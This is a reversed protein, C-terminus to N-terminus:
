AHKARIKARAQVKKSEIALADWGRSEEAALGRAIQALALKHNGLVSNLGGLYRDVSGLISEGFSVIAFQGEFPELCGLLMKADDARDLRDIASANFALECLHNRSHVKNDQNKLVQTLKEAAFGLDGHDIACAIQLGEGGRRVVKDSSLLGFVGHDPRLVGRHYALLALQGAASTSYVTSRGRHEHEQIHEEAAAWSGSAMSLAAHWRAADAYLSWEGPSIAMEGLKDVAKQVGALDGTQMCLVGFLREARQISHAQGNWKGSDSLQQLLSRRYHVDPHSLLTLSLGYLAESIALDSQSVQAEDLAQSALSRAEGAAAWLAKHYAIAAGTRAHLTPNQITLSSLHTLLGLSEEDELGGIGFSSHAVAAEVALEFSGSRSAHSAALLAYKKVESQAGASAAVLTRVGFVRASRNSVEEAPLLEIARDAHTTASLFSLRDRDILAARLLWEVLQAPDAIRGAAVLQNVIFTALEPKPLVSSASNKSARERYALKWPSVDISASPDDLLTQEIAAKALQNCMSHRRSQSISNVLVSTFFVHTISVVDAASSDVLLNAYICEDIAEFFQEDDTLGIAKQLISHALSGQACAVFQLCRLGDASLKALRQNVLNEVIQPADGTELHSGKISEEVFLPNGSTMAELKALQEEDLRLGRQIALKEIEARDFRLLDATACRTRRAASLLRHASHGPQPIPRHTFFLVLPHLSASEDKVASSAIFAELARVASDSIWHIDEFVIALPRHLRLHSTIAVLAQAYEHAADPASSILDTHGSFLRLANPSDQLATNINGTGGDSRLLSSFLEFDSQSESFCRGVLTIAGFTETMSKAAALTFTSKGIGEEGTTIVISMGKMTFYPRTANWHSGRGVLATPCDPLAKATESPAAAVSTAAVHLPGSASLAEWPKPAYQLIAMEVTRVAEGPDCGLQERLSSRLNSIRDLAESPRGVTALGGALWAVATENLPQENSRLMLDDIALETRGTSLLVEARRQRLFDRKLELRVSETAAWQQDCFEEFARGRWFALARDAKEIVGHPDAILMAEDALRDFLFRDQPMADLSISWGFPDTRVVSGVPALAQRLRTLQVRLAGSSPGAGSAADPSDWGAEFLAEPGISAGGGVLIRALIRRLLRGVIPVSIDGNVVELPGFVRVLVEGMTVLHLRFFASNGTQNAQIKSPYGARLEYTVAQEYFM